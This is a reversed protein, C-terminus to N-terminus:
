LALNDLWGNLNWDEEVLLANITKGCTETITDHMDVVFDTLVGVQLEQDVIDDHLEITMKSYSQLSTSVISGSGALGVGRLVIWGTQHCQLGRFQTDNVEVPESVSKWTIVVRNDGEHRHYTQKGRVNARFAGAHFHLAYSQAVLDESAKREDLFYSMTKVGETALGRWFAKATVQLDFPMMANAQTVFAVGAGSDADDKVHMDCFYADRDSFAPGGFLKEVELYAREVHALQDAFIEDDTLCSPPKVDLPKVRKVGALAEVEQAIVWFHQDRPRKRLLKELRSALKLQGELSVRLKQNQEEVRTREKLQRAAIGKWVSGVSLVTADATDVGASENVLQEVGQQTKLQTMKDELTEVLDRLYELELKQRRVRKKKPKLSGTGAQNMVGRGHADRSFSAHQKSQWQAAPQAMTPLLDAVHSDQPISAELTWAGTGKWASLPQQLHSGSLGDSEMHSILAFAEELPLPAREEDDLRTSMNLVFDTLVDAPLEHEMADSQLKPTMRSRLQVSTSSAQGEDTSNVRQLYAWGTELFQLGLLTTGNVAVPDVLSEWVIVIHDDDVFQQFTHKVHLDAKFTDKTAIMQCFSADSTTYIKAEREGQLVSYAKTVRALQGGFIAADNPLAFSQQRNARTLIPLHSHEQQDCPCKRLIKDLRRVLQIQTKLAKRLKWNEATAQTRESLQHEAMKEWVSPGPQRSSNTFSARSEVNPDQAERDLCTGSEPLVPGDNTCGARTKLQVLRRELKGVLDRLRALEVQQRRVRKKKAKSPGIQVSAVVPQQRELENAQASLVATADDRAGEWRNAPTATSGLGAHGGGASM